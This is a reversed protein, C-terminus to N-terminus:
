PTDHYLICQPLLFVSCTRASFINWTQKSRTRPPLETSLATHAQKTTNTISIKLNPAQIKATEGVKMARIPCVLQRFRSGSRIIGVAGHKIRLSSCPHLVSVDHMGAQTHEPSPNTSTSSSTVTLSSDSVPYYENIISIMVSPPGKAIAMGLHLPSPM